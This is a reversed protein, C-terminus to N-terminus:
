TRFKRLKPGVWKRSLLRDVESSAVSRSRQIVRRKSWLRRWQRLVDRKGRLFASLRGVRAFYLLSGGTYLLHLGAYKVLLSTPMNKVFIAAVNRQGHYVYAPSNYRHTVSVKHYVRSSPVNVIRYGRLRARFSWDVDEYGAFFDEDLGGIENLVRRAYIASCAVATFVEAPETIEWDKRGQGRWEASGAITYTAGASWITDRRDFYLIKSDCAAISADGDIHRVLEGLWEPEVETDNNLLVIYEATAARIGVNNGGCFGQNTPLALIRVEPYEARVWEVSGDTSGNDVLIVEFDRFTQSRVSELCEPLLQRGNWNVIVVSATPM